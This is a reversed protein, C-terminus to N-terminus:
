VSRIDGRGNTNQFDAELPCSERAYFLGDGNVAFGSEGDLKQSCFLCVNKIRRIYTGHKLILTVPETATSYSAAVYSATASAREHVGIAM